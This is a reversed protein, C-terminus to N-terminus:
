AAERRHAAEPAVSIGSDDSRVEYTELPRPSKLLKGLTLKAGSWDTWRVVHGDRVDFQSHHRPCTVVPGNLAGRSLDGGMHPCTGQTAYYDDGVRAILVAKDDLTVRKMEGDALEGAHAIKVFRDM